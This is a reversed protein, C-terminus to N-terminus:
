LVRVKGDGKQYCIGAWCIKDCCFTYLMCAPLLVSECMLGAWLRLWSMRPNLVCAPACPQLQRWLQLVQMHMWWVSCHAALLVVLFCLVAPQWWPLGVTGQAATFALSCASNGVGDPMRCQLLGCGLLVWVAGGVLYGAAATCSGALAGSCAAHVVMLIHNLRRDHPGQYTDLVFLQRRLYNWYQSVSYRAQLV